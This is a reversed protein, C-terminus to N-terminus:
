SAAPMASRKFILTLDLRCSKQSSRFVWMAILARRRDSGKFIATLSPTATAKELEYAENLERVEAAASYQPDKGHLFHLVREAEQLKGQWVLYRPSEPMFKVGFLLIAPAIFQIGIPIQWSIAGNRASLTFVVATSIVVGIISVCQYLNILSGRWKAPALESQDAVGESIPRLAPSSASVFLYLM